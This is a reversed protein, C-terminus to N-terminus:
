GTDLVPLEDSPLTASQHEVDVTLSRQDIAPADVTDCLENSSLMGLFDTTLDPHLSKLFHKPNPPLFTQFHTTKNKMM